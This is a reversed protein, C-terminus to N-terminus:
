PSETTIQQSVVRQIHITLYFMEDKSITYAYTKKIFLAIKGACAFADAHKEKVIQYLYEDRDVGRIGRFLRQAFFKLHTVFRHHALTTADFQINYHYKVINLVEQAVKTINVVNTMEENLEANVIHHAIFGAEDDPLLISTHAEIIDLAKKGIAYEERYINSIEWLLGNKIDMGDKHREIAYHIHDTLSVYIIDNLEKGLSLKALKIIEDSIEIIQLPIEELLTALRNSTDQNENTFIKEINEEAVDDGPKKMFGLGKGKIILENELSDLASIVNNNFVQKIKM